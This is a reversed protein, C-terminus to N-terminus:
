ELDVVRLCRSYCRTYIQGILSTHMNPLAAVCWRYRSCPSWPACQLCWWRKRTPMRCLVPPRTHMSTHRTLCPVWPSAIPGTVPVLFACHVAHVCWTCPDREAGPNPASLTPKRSSTNQTNPKTRSSTHPPPEPEGVECIQNYMSFFANRMNTCEAEPSRPKQALYPQACARVYM